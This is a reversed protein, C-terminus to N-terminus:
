EGLLEIGRIFIGDFHCPNERLIVDENGDDNGDGHEFEEDAQRLVSLQNTSTVFSYSERYLSKKCTAFIPRFILGVIVDSIFFRAAHM